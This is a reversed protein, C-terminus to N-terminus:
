IRLYYIRFYETIEPRPQSRGTERRFRNAADAVVALLPAFGRVDCVALLLGGIKV